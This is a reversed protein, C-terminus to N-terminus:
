FIYDNAVTVKASILGFHALILGIHRKQGGLWGLGPNPSETSGCGTNTHLHPAEQAYGVSGVSEFNLFTVTLLRKERWFPGFSALIGRRVGLWGLFPQPSQQGGVLIRICTHHRRHTDPAEFM